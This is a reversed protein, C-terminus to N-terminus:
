PQAIPIADTLVLESRCLLESLRPDVVRTAGAADSTETRCAASAPDDFHGLFRRWGPDGCGGLSGAGPAARANLFHEVEHDPPAPERDGITMGSWTGNLWDPTGTRPSGGIGCAIPTFGDFDIPESGYCALGGFMGLGVLRSVPMPSSPCSMGTAELTDAGDLQGPVWGFPLTLEDRVGEAVVLHWDGLTELVWVRQGASVAGPTLGIDPEDDARSAAVTLQDAAVQRYAAAVMAPATGDPPASPSATSPGPRAQTCAAALLAAGVIASIRM